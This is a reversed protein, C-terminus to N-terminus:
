YRSPYKNKVQESYGKEPYPLMDANWAEWLARLEAFKEPYKDQLMARERSDEALNFLHEKGGLRLYKWDGQRVAGQENSRFRWFLTRTVPEAEGLLQPLVDIGDFQDEAAEGGAAALFTPLFDMSIMVQESTSAPAVHGPWRMVLPVRIGGELLEAKVGTFPWTDSFREGGNDSTFVVITNGALGQEELAALVKNVNEDMIEVMEAYKARSGGDFHFFNQLADAIAQDERGEWPWHPATFHLSLYLPKDKVARIHRVAEDGLLDTLYGIEGVPENDRFLGNPGEKGDVIPRHRFYDAAGEVIGFFHDWGHSLPGQEPPQGLHWKGILVTEYGEDRLVSAITARDKPLGIGERAWPGLPEHLGVEARYQYRGTALATRTPSCIASNAYAQTLMIGDNALSDISPTDIDRAGYVGIDAYGLDDAMIFVINPKDPDPEAACGTALLLLSVVAVCARSCFSPFRELTM